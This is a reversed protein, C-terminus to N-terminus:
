FIFLGWKTSSKEPGINYMHNGTLINGTLIDEDYHGRNQCCLALTGLWIEGTLMTPVCPKSCNSFTGLNHKARIKTGNSFFCCINVLRKNAGRNFNGIFCYWFFITPLITTAKTKAKKAFCKLWGITRFSANEYDWQGFNRRSSALFCNLIHNFM